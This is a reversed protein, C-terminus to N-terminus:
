RLIAIPRSQYYRRAFLYVIWLTLCGSLASIIRSLSYDDDAYTLARLNILFIWLAKGSGLAIRFDGWIIQLTEEFSHPHAQRVYEVFTRRDDNLYYGEDYFMFGNHLINHFRLWVGFVVLFVVIVVLCPRIYKQLKTLM